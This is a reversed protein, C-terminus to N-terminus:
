LTLRLAHMPLLRPVYESARRLPVGHQAEKIPHQLRRRANLFSTLLPRAFRYIVRATLSFVPLLFPRSCYSRFRSLSEPPPSCAPVRPDSRSLRPSAGRPLPQVYKAAYESLVNAILLVHPLQEKSWNERFLNDYLHLDCHPMFAITPSQLRHRAM